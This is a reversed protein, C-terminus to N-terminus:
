SSCSYVYFLVVDKSDIPGNDCLGGCGRKIKLSYQTCVDETHFFLKILFGAAISEVLPMLDQIQHDQLCIQYLM